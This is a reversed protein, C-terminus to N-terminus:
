GTDPRLRMRRVTYEVYGSTQRRVAPDAADLPTKPMAPRVRRARVRSALAAVRPPPRPIPRSRPWRPRLRADDAGRSFGPQALRQFQPIALTSILAQKLVEGRTVALPSTNVGSVQRWYRHEPGHPAPPTRLWRGKALLRIVSRASPFGLSRLPLSARRNPSRPPTSAPQRRTQVVLVM